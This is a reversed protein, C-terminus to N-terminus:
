GEHAAIRFLHLLEPEIEAESAVTEAVAARVAQGFRRRLRHVELKIQPGTMGVALGIEEYPKLLDTGHLSTKIAAFVAARGRAAYSGELESLVRGILTMAWARDYALEAAQTAGQDELDSEPAESLEIPGPLGGGRKQRNAHRWATWRARRLGEKMYSRLRGQEQTLQQLIEPRAWNLMFEQTLDEAEQPSCGLARLFKRAPETYCQCLTEM